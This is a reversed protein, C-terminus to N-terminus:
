RNMIRKDTSLLLCPQKGDIFMRDRSNKDHNAINLFEDIKDTTIMELM